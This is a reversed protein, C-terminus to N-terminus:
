FPAQCGTPVLRRRRAQLKGRAWRLVLARDDGDRRLKKVLLGDEWMQLFHLQGERDDLQRVRDSIGAVFQSGAFRERFFHELERNPITGSETGGRAEAAQRLEATLNSFDFYCHGHGFLYFSSVLREREWMAKLKAMIASREPSLLVPRRFCLYDRFHDKGAEAAFRGEAVLYEPFLICPLPRVPYIRCRDNELFPCPKRLRLSIRRIWGDKEDSFLGLRYHRRYLDSTQEGRHLAAGLLDVLSAEVQLDQNKCGPRTCGPDCLFDSEAAALSARTQLYSTLWPRPDGADPATRNM